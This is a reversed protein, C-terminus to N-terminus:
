RSRSKILLSQATSSRTSAIWPIHSPANRPLRRQSLQSKLLRLIPLTKLLEMLQQTLLTQAVKRQSPLILSTHKRLRQRLRTWNSSDQDQLSSHYLFEQSQSVRKRKCKVQQLRMLAMSLSLLLFNERKSLVRVQSFISRWTPIMIWAWVKRRVLITALRTFNITETISFARLDRLLWITPRLMLWLLKRRILLKSFLRKMKNFLRQPMWLLSKSLYQSHPISLLTCRAFRSPLQHILVLLPVESACQKTEM